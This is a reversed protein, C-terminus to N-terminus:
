LSGAYKKTWFDFHLEVIKLGLNKSILSLNVPYAPNQLWDVVAAQGGSLYTSEPISFTRTDAEFGFEKALAIREELRFDAFNWSHPILPMM